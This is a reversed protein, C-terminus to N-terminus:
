HRDKGELPEVLEGAWKLVQRGPRACLLGKGGGSIAEQRQCLQFRVALVLTGRGGQGWSPKQVAKAVQQIICPM